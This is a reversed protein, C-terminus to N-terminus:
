GRSMTLCVLGICILAIGIIKHATLPEGFAFHAVLASFVFGLALFPYAVSVNVKALVILWSIISVAYVGLGGLIYPNLAAKLVFAGSLALEGLSSMAKKLLIQALANLLVSFLILPIFPKM